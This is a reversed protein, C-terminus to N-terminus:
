WYLCCRVEIQSLPFHVTLCEENTEFCDVFVVLWNLIDCLVEKELFQKGRTVSPYNWQHFIDDRRIVSSSGGKIKFLKSLRVFGETELRLKCWSLWGSISFLRMCPPIIVRNDSNWRQGALKWRSLPGQLKMTVYTAYFVNEARRTASFSLM